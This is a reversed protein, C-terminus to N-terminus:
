TCDHTFEDRTFPFALAIMVYIIRSRVSDNENSTALILFCSKQLSFIPRFLWLFNNRVDISIHALDECVVDLRGALIELLVSSRRRWGLKM